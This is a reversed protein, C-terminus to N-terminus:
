LPSAAELVLVDETTFWTTCYSSIPPCSAKNTPILNQMSL